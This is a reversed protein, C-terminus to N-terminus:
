KECGEYEEKEKVKNGMGKGTRLRQGEAEREMVRQQNDSWILKRREDTLKGEAKGVGDLFKDAGRSNDAALRRQHNLSFGEFFPIGGGEGDQHSVRM